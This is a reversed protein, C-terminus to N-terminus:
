KSDSQSALRVYIVGIVLVAGAILWASAAGAPWANTEFAQAYSYLAPTLTATGPGGGTLILIVDFSGLAFGTLLMTVTILLPRISPLAVEFVEHIWSAGSIRAVDWREQPIAMLGPLFLFAAFPALRWVEVAVVVPLALRLDGLPSSVDPFGLWGFVFNVFGNTSGLLFHWIVGSGIPSVLWPVLLLVRVGARGRFRERLLYAIAFGVIIELPVAVVTFLVINRAAAAFQPDRVVALYNDLGVFRVSTTFPSYTTFTSLLGLLAPGVLWGALLVALPAFLVLRDRRTLRV